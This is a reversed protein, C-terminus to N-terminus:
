PLPKRSNLSDIISYTKILNDKKIREAIKKDYIKDAKELFSKSSLYKIVKHLKSPSVVKSFVLTFSDQSLVSVSFMEKKLFFGLIKRSYEDKHLALLYNDERANLDQLAKLAKISSMNLTETTCDWFRMGFVKNRKNNQINNISSIQM